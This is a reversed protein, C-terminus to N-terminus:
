IRLLMKVIPIMPKTLANKIANTPKGTKKWDISNLKIVIGNIIKAAIVPDTKNPEMADIIEVRIFDLSPKLTVMFVTKRNKQMQLCQM